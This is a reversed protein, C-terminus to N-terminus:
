KNVPMQKVHVVNCQIPRSWKPLDVILTMEDPFKSLSNFAPKLTAIFCQELVAANSATDTVMYRFWIKRDYNKFREKFSSIVRNSLNTSMGVYISMGKGSWFSYVGCKRVLESLLQAFEPTLEQEIESDLIWASMKNRQMWGLFNSEELLTPNSLLDRGFEDALKASYLIDVYSKINLIEAINLNPSEKIKKRIFNELHM